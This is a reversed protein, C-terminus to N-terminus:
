CWTLHSTRWRPLPLEATRPSLWWTGASKWCACRWRRILTTEEALLIRLRPTDGESSESSSIDAIHIPIHGAMVSKSFLATFHFASGQGVESEVWIDGNMMNVLHSCITLGLGTGGYRRSTSGDAQSFADFIGQQKEASIGIGTDRVVFHLFANQEDQSQVEVSLAVEGQKTFKISNAILNIVIQKLRTPDGILTEPVEPQVHYALELGRDGARLTMLQM